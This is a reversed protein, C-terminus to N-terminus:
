FTWNWVAPKGSVEPLYTGDEKDPRVYKALFDVRGDRECRWVAGEVPDKAGHYGYTELARMAKAISFPEGAANHLTAPHQFAGSIRDHFETYLAREYPRRKSRKIWLDFAAFPELPGLDYITGHAQALWEGSIWEGDALLPRFRGENAQVWRAFVHHQEYPSSWAPWGARGLAVIEEGIRAVAVNGGDLKEQVIIRDRCDRTKHTLILARGEHISHDGSGMRSQPLHGISGYAKRGLPKEKIPSPTFKAVM